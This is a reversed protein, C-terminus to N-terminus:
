KLIEELNLQKRLWNNHKLFKAPVGAVIQWAKVAGKAFGNAALMSGRGLATHQHTTSNLGMNVYPELTSHGGVMAGSSITVFEGLISDHGIHAHSMIYCHCDIYTVGDPEAPAHITVHERIVTNSGIVVRGHSKQEAHRMEAPAGIVSYEGVYVNNGLEVNPYIIATKHIKNTNRM